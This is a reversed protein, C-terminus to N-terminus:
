LYMVSRLIGMDTHGYVDVPYEIGLSTFIWMAAKM